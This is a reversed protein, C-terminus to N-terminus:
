GYLRSRAEWLNSTIENMKEITEQAEAAVAERQEAEPEAARVGPAAAGLWVARAERASCYGSEESETEAGPAVFGERNKKRTHEEENKEYTKKRNSSQNIPQM